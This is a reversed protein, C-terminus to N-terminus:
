MVGSSVRAPVGIVSSLPSKGAQVVDKGTYDAAIQAGLEQIRAQIQVESLMPLIRDRSPIM